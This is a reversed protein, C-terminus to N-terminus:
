SLFYMKPFIRKLYIFFNFIKRVDLPKKNFFKKASNQSFEAIVSVMQNTPNSSQYYSNERNSTAKQWDFLEDDNLASQHHSDYDVNENKCTLLSFIKRSRLKMKHGNRPSLVVDNDDDRNTDDENNDNSNEMDESKNKSVDEDNEAENANLSIESINNLKTNVEDTSSLPDKLFRKLPQLVYEYLAGYTLNAKPVMIIYPLGFCNSTYTAKEKLHVKVKLYDNNNYNTALEYIYIDDRDKINALSESPEFIKFFKNTYVDSVMM